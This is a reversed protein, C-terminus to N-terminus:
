AFSDFFINQEAVGLERLKKVCSNLMGPSGCLYAETNAADRLFEQFYSLVYGTRGDWGDGEQPQSLVPVYTFDPLDRELQRFEETLYLDRVSRAGFFYVMRRRSGEIRLHELMSKIPAKGSGGAIFFMDAATDRILFDGFPGTFSIEDGQKLYDHVWTTVIGDPVRRIILQVHRDDEPRSSISYARSVSERSKEYRPARLQVYQGAKFEIAVPELLEFTVGKIDYTYDVIESVRARFERIAFLEEPVEIALDNKVKIQCSLRISGALEAASLFPKETPLVPGAGSLVKVKCYGCSGRGGCASPIFLREAALAGLLHGGGQVKLVKKGGNIDISCEGYNAFLMEALVLLLALAGGIASVILVNAAILNM